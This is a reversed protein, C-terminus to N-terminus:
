RYLRHTVIYIAVEKPVLDAFKEGVKLCRRVETASIDPIPSKAGRPVSIIDVLSKVEKFEKWEDTQKSVDDGTVLYFKHKPNLKKLHKVTRVTHSVGGLDKEFRSVMVQPKLHQFAFLCMRYRDIFPALDKGFPHIFCPIVLIQDVKNKALLWECIAVHGLHPPNFSGGLIGVRLTM